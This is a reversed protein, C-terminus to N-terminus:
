IISSTVTGSSSSSSCDSAYDASLLFSYIHFVCLVSFFIESFFAAFFRRVGRDAFLLRGRFLIHRFSGPGYERGIVAHVAFVHDRASIGNRFQESAASRNVFEIDCVAFALARDYFDYRFRPIHPNGNDLRVFVFKFANRSCRVVLSNNRKCRIVVIAVDVINESIRFFLAFLRENHHKVAHCVRSIETRYDSSRFAAANVAYDNRFAAAAPQCRGHEFRRRTGAFIHLYCFDCINRFRYTRQFLAANPRIRRVSVSVAVEIRGIQRTRRCNNESVLAFANGAKDSM